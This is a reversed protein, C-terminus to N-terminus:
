RIGRLAPLERLKERLRQRRKKLMETSYIQDPAANSVYDDDLQEAEEETLLEYRAVLDHLFIHRDVDDLGPVVETLITMLQQRDDDRLAAEMPGENGSGLDLETLDVQGAGYPGTLQRFHRRRENRSRDASRLLLWRWLAGPKGLCWDAVRDPEKALEDFAEGAGTLSFQPDFRLKDELATLLREFYTDCLWTLAALKESEDGAGLALLADDDNM